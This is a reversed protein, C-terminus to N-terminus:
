PYLIGTKTWTLTLSKQYVLWKDKRYECPFAEIHEDGNELFQLFRAIGDPEEFVPCLIAHLSQSTRVFVVFAWPDTHESKCLYVVRDVLSGHLDPAAPFVPRVMHVFQRFHGDANRLVNAKNSGANKLFFDGLVTYGLFYGGASFVYRYGLMDFLTLHAAKLLSVMAALRVDKHIEIEWKMDPSALLKAPHIKLGLRVQKESGQILVESFQPPITGRAFFHDVPKGNAVIQPSYKKSLEKSLLVKEPTVGERYQLSVFDSEFFAGFFHDVDARQVIWRRSSNPFDSNVIHGQCVDVDEDRFLFPCYFHDFSSGTVREYDIHLEDLKRRIESNM